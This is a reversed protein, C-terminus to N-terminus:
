LYSLLAKAPKQQYYWALLRSYNLTRFSSVNDEKRMKHTIPLWTLKSDTSSTKQELIIDYADTQQQEKKM